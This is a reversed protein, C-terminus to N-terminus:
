SKFFSTTGKVIFICISTFLHGPEWCTEADMFYGHVVTKPCTLM